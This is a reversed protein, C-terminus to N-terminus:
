RHLYRDLKLGAFANTGFPAAIKDIFEQWEKNKQRQDEIQQIQRRTPHHAHLIYM